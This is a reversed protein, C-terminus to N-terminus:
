FRERYYRKMAGKYQTLLLAADSYTRATLGPSQGEQGTNILSLPVTGETEGEVEGCEILDLYRGYEEGGMMERLPELISNIKAAKYGNVPEDPKRRSQAQFEYYMQDFLDRLMTFRKKDQGYQEATERQEEDMNGEGSFYLEYNENPLMMGPVSPIRIGIIKREPVAYKKDPNYTQGTQYRIYESGNKKMVTIKGPVDPIMVPMNGYM